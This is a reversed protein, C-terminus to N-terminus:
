QYLAVDKIKRRPLLIRLEPICEILQDISRPQKIIFLDHCILPLVVSFRPPAYVKRSIPNMPLSM